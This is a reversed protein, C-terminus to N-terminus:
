SKLDLFNALLRAGAASSREPHFQTACFNDHCLVATFEGTHSATALSYEAVPLAYSHVFYFYSGDAIEKLLPHQQKLTAPSWGMNPVPTQPSASLKKAIGPIVGLCAADDEESAQALLQMGLCIGLVPQELAPILEDLGTARLKQMAAAAAGVGPLIVHRAARISEADQTLTADVGLRALAFRLSAINAGGSDIIAVGNKSM